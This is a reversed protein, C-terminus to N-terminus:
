EILEAQFGWAGNTANIFLGKQKYPILLSQHIGSVQLQDQLASM